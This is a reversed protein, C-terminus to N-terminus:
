NKVGIFARIQSVITDMERNQVGFFSRSLAISKNNKTLVILRYTNQWGLLDESEHADRRVKAIETLPMVGSEKRFLNNWQWSFLQDKKSFTYTGFEIFYYVGLLPLLIGFFLGVIAPPELDGSVLREGHEILLFPIMCLFIIAGVYTRNKVILESESEIVKIM